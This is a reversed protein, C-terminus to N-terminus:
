YNQVVFLCVFDNHLSSYMSFLVATVFLVIIKWLLFTCKSLVFYVSLFSNFLFHSFYIYSKHKQVYLELISRPQVYFIDMEGGQIQWELGNCGNYFFIGAMGYSFVNLAWLLLIENLRWGNLVHVNQLLITINIFTVMYAFFQAFVNNLFAFRYQFVEKIKLYIIRYYYTVSVKM